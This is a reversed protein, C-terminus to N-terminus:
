TSLVSIIIIVKVYARTILPLVTFPVLYLLAPQASKSMESVVTATILGAIVNFPLVSTM